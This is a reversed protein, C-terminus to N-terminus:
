WFGLKEAGFAEAALEQAALIVGQPAFLNDLNALETLDARFVKTGLLDALPRSIGEGRKHGPTYFPAHDHTKCAKIADLLPTQKQNLMKRIFSTGLCMKSVRNM